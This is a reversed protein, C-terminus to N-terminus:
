SILYFGSNRFTRMSNILDPLSVQEIKGSLNDHLYVEKERGEIFGALLSFHGTNQGRSHIRALDYFVLVDANSSIDRIFIDPEILNESPRVFRSALNYQNLFRNLVVENIDVGKKGIDFQRSIKEQSSVSFGRADLISQLCSALCMNELQHFFKYQKM